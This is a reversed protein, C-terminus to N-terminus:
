ALLMFSLFLCTFHIAQDAGIVVFFWHRQNAKWLKTTLKSSVFDTIVHLVYNIAIFKAVFLAPMFFLLFLFPLVYFFVHQLLVWFNKSKNIAHYDSQLIFDGVFHAWVFVIFIISTSM